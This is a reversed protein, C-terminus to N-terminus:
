RRRMRTREYRLLGGAADLTLEYTGLLDGTDPVSRREVLEACVRWGEECHTVSTIASIRLKILALNREASEIVQAVTLRAVAPSPVFPPQISSQQMTAPQMTPQVAALAPQMAVPINAPAMGEDIAPPMVPPAAYAVPPPL